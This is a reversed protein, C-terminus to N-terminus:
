SLVPTRFMPLNACVPHAPTQMFHFDPIDTIRCMAQKPYTLAFTM